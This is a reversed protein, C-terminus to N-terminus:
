RGQLASALAEFPLLVCRRRSKAGHVPSFAAFSAWSPPPAAGEALLARMAEIAGRAADRETNVAASWLASAAAQCLLCGRVSYGLASVAGGDLKVDLIVRDGCFANDLTVTLDPDALRGAGRAAAALALIAEHYLTDSM